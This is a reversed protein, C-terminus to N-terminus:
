NKKAEDVAEASLGNLRLAVLCIKELAESSLKGIAPIDAETFLRVGKEDVVTFVILKARASVVNGSKDKKRLIQEWEDRADGTMESVIIDGGWEEVTVPEQRLKTKSLIDERKLM